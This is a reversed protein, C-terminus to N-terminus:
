ADIAPLAAVDERRIPKNRHVHRVVFDLLRQVINERENAHNTHRPDQIEISLNGQSHIVVTYFSGVRLGSGVTILEISEFNQSHTKM